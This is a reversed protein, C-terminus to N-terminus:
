SFISGDAMLVGPTGNFIRTGQIYASGPVSSLATLAIDYTTNYAVFFVTSTNSFASRSLNGLSIGYSGNYCIMVPQSWLQGNNYTM